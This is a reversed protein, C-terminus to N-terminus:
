IFSVLQRLMDFPGVPVVEVCVDRFRSAYGSKELCKLGTELANDPNKFFRARSLDVGFMPHSGFEMLYRSLPRRDSVYTMEVVYRHYHKNWFDILGFDVYSSKAFSEYMNKHRCMISFQDDIDVGAACLGSIFEVFHKRSFVAVSSCVSGSTTKYPNAVCDHGDVFDWCLLVARGYDLAVPHRSGYHMHSIDFELRALKDGGIFHVDREIDLDTKLDEKTRDYVWLVTKGVSDYFRCRARWDDASIRSHQFELVANEILVDARRFSGDQNKVVVERYPMAFERQWAVHWETMNETSAVCDSGSKHSFHWARKRGQKVVLKEMCHPCFYYAHRNANLVDIYEGNSDKAILM